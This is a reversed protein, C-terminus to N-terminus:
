ISDEECACEGCIKESPHIECGCLNCRGHPYNRGDSDDPESWRDYTRPGYTCGFVAAGALMRCCPCECDIGACEMRCPHGNVGAHGCGRFRCIIDYTVSETVRHWAAYAPFGEPATGDGIKTGRGMLLVAHALESQTGHFMGVANAMVIDEAQDLTMFTEM